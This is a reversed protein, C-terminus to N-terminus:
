RLQQGHRIPSVRACLALVIFFAFLAAGEVEQVLFTLTGSVSAATCPDSGSLLGWDVTRRHCGCPNANAAEQRTSRASPIPERM